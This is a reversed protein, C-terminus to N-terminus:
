AKPNLRIFQDIVDKSWFVNRSGAIHLEGPLKGSSRYNYLTRRCLGTREIVQALTLLNDFM